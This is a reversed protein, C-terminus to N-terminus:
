SEGEGEALDPDLAWMSESKSKNFNRM